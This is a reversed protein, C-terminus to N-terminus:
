FNLIYEGSDINNVTVRFTDKNTDLKVSLKQVEKM